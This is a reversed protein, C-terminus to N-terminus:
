LFDCFCFPLIRFLVHSGRTASGLRCLEWQWAYWVHCADARDGYAMRIDAM